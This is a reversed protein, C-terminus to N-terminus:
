RRKALDACVIEEDNRAFVHRYAFAPHSWCVGGRRNLQDRTPAILFGRSVEKFGKPSLEGVLLWGRENFMWTRRGNQVFHITAWRARPVATRDEWVRAGNALDLCRFEGYSDVGYAHGDLLVPTSIISHLADTRRENRGRRKWVETVKLEKTALQLLLSGDYFGTFFLTDGHRVPSAVGLPMRSAKFPHEWLLKGSAPAVGLVRDGSWCVLVRHGAQDIVLPASYNGRDGFAKWREKGTTRDFAVLYAGEKGSVPVILLDGELVPSAAIGWIPMRIEYRAALDCSWKVKGTAADFCHLHGMTGLGYALGHAVLVSCRPGATYRVGAYSCPYAHKWLVKGSKWDLCIVREVEAPEERRDMVYVRGDAVTPGSYGAGLPARWRVPIKEPLQEMLGTERWVGDRTPGRWQPWDQGREQAPLGGLVLLFAVVWRRQSSM